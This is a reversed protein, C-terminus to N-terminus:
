GVTPDLTTSVQVRSARDVHVEHDRREAIESVVVLGRSILLAGGCFGWKRAPLGAGVGKPILVNCLMYM